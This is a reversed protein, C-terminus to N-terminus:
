LCGSNKTVGEFALDMIKVSLNNLLKSPSFNEKKEIDHSFKTYVWIKKVFSKYWPTLSYVVYTAITYLPKDKVFKTSRNKKNTVNHEVSEM